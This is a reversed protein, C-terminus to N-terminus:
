FVTVQRGDFALRVEGSGDLVGLQEAVLGRSRFAAVCDGVRDPWTALLFAYCPFCGLCDAVAVGDPVPLRSLDVAAGLAGAARVPHGGVVPVQYRGSAWRMGRLAERVVPEPGVVTDVIALPRAGMAALDNVNTLVAAVGAGYPDTAVFAPLIAEGGVVLTG